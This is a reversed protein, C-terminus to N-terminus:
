PRTLLEALDKPIQVNYDSEFDEVDEYMRHFFAVIDVGLNRAATFDAKAKDWEHLYLWEQARARYADAYDPNLRIAETFDEVAALASTAGLIQKATDLSMQNAM